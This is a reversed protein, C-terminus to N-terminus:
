EPIAPWAIDPADEAQVRNLQVSYTEWATLLAKEEDTAMNLRVARELPALVREAENMLRNKKSEATVRLQERTPPPEDIWCPMGSDDAGRMKGEPPNAIFAAYVGDSVPRADKPWSGAKVYDKKLIGAVFVLESPSFYFNAETSELQPGMNEPLQLSTISAAEESHADDLKNIDGM